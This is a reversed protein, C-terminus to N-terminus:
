KTVCNQMQIILSQKLVMYASANITHKNYLDNQKEIKVKIRRIQKDGDVVLLIISFINSM